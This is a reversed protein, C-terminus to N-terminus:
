GTAGASRSEDLLQMALNGLTEIAAEVCADWRAANLRICNRYKGEISFIHGPAISIGCNQARQYLHLANIQEPM